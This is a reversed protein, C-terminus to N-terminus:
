EMVSTEVFFKTNEYPLLLLKEGQESLVICLPEKKDESVFRVFYRPLQAMMDKFPHHMMLILM